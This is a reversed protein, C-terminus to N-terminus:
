SDVLLTARRVTSTPHSVKITRLQPLHPRIQEKLSEYTFLLLCYHLDPLSRSDKTRPHNSVHTRTSVRLNLRIKVKGAWQVALLSDNRSCGRWYFLFNYTFTMCPPRGPSRLSERAHSDGPIMKFHVTEHLLHSIPGKANRVLEGPSSSTWSGCKSSSPLTSSASVMRVLGKQPPPCRLPLFLCKSLMKVSPPYALLM